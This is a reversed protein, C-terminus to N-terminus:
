LLRKLHDNGVGISVADKSGQFKVDVLASCNLFANDAITELTSPLTLSILAGCGEFASSDISKIGESITVDTLKLMWVYCESGISSVSYGGVSAPVTLETANSNKFYRLEATGDTLLVYEYDGDTLITGDVPPAASGSVSSNSSDDPDVTDPYLAGTSDLVLLVALAIVAVSLVAIATLMIRKDNIIKVFTSEQNEKLKKKGTNKTKKSM